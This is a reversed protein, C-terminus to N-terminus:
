ASRQGRPKFVRMSGLNIRGVGGANVFIEGPPVFLVDDDDLLQAAVLELSQRVAEEAAERCQERVTSAIQEMVCTILNTGRRDPSPVGYANAIADMVKSYTRCSAKFGPDYM